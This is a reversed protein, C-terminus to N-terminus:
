KYRRGSSTIQVENSLKKILDNYKFYYDVYAKWIRDQRNFPINELDSEKVWFSYESGIYAKCLNGENEVDYYVEYENEKFRHHKVTKVKVIFLNQSLMVKEDVKFLPENKKIEEKIENLEKELEDYKDQLLVRNAM